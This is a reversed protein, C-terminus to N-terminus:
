ARCSSQLSSSSSRSTGTPPGARHQQKLCGQIMMEGDQGSEEARKQSGDMEVTAIHIHTNAIGSIVLWWLVRRIRPHVAM